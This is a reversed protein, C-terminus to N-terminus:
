LWRRKRFFYVMLIVILFMISLLGFYGYPSELYPIYQFNMGYIGTLFSLPIFITTIITLIKMTDNITSNITSHYLEILSMVRNSMNELLEHVLLTHDYVDAFYIKMGEQFVDSDKTHILKNMIERTPIMSRKLMAFEQKMQLIKELDEKEPNNLLKDEIRDIAEEMQEIVVFYNDVIVDLITYALFDHSKLRIKGISKQIRERIPDFVDGKEEQLTLLYDKAVIISLQESAIRDESEIYSLMKLVIYVHNEREEIKARQKINVIDELIFNDICFIKGIEKIYEINHVGDLNIWNTMKPFIEIEKIDGLLTKKFSHENFNISEIIISEKIDKNGTYVVSGPPLGIKNVKRKNKKM